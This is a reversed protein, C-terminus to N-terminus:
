GCNKLAASHVPPPYVCPVRDRRGGRWCSLPSQSFGLAAADVIIGMYGENAPSTQFAPTSM